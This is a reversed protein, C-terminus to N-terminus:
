ANDTTLKPKLSTANNSHKIVNECDLNLVVTYEFWLLSSKVPGASNASDNSLKGVALDKKPSGFLWQSVLFLANFFM